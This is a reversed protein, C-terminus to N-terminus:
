ERIGKAEVIRVKYKKFHKPLKVDVKWLCGAFKEKSFTKGELTVYSPEPAMYYRLRSEPGLYAGKRTLSISFKTNRKFKKVLRKYTIIIDQNFSNDEDLAKALDMLSMGESHLKLNLELFEFPCEGAIIDTEITAFIM